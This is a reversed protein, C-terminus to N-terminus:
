SRTITLDLNLITHATLSLATFATDKEKFSREKEGIGLYAEPLVGEELVQQEMDHYLALLQEAVKETTFQGTAAM